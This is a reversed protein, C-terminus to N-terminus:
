PTVRRREAEEQRDQRRRVQQAQRSGVPACGKDSHFENWKARLDDAAADPSVTGTLSAGCLCHLSLKAM